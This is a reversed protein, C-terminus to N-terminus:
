YTLLDKGNLTFDCKETQVVVFGQPFQVQLIDQPQISNQCTIKVSWSDPEAFIQYNKSAPEFSSVTCIGEKATVSLTNLQDIIYDGDGLTNYSTWEFYAPEISYSNTWGSITFILPGPAPMYSEVEPFLGKFQALRATRDFEVTVHQNVECGAECTLKFIQVANEPITLVEPVRLTFYGGAPIDGMTYIEFRYIANTQLV